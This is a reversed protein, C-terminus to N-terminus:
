RRERSSYRANIKRVVTSPKVMMLLADTAVVKRPEGPAEKEVEINAADWEGTKLDAEAIYM